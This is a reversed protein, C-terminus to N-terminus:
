LGHSWPGMTLQFMSRELADEHDDRERRLLPGLLLSWGGSKMIKGITCSDMVAFDIIEELLVM